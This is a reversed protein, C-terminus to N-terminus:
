KRKFYFGKFKSPINARDQSDFEFVLDYKEAFISQFKELDLFWAPYSAPYINSPVKQITLQENGKEVFSTRDFIIYNFNYEILSKLFDYPNELYQVVSSLLIVNPNKSIICSEIDYFFNLRADQFFLRGVDVFNKQEVISWSLKKLGSLFNRSQYYSTGLSGGFDLINLENQNEIAIRLLSALLPFSYQIRDFIVSDREYIAEGNKVKLLSNKVTKLILDSDYGCSEQCAELWDKYNGFFGTNAQMSMYLKLVLPPTLGRIISKIRESFRSFSFNM